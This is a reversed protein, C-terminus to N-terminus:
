QDEVNKQHVTANQTWNNLNKVADAIANELSVILVDRANENIEPFANDLLKKRANDLEFLRVVYDNLDSHYDIEVEDM